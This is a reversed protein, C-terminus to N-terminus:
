LANQVKQAQIPTLAQKKSEHLKLHRTFNDKSATQKEISTYRNSM